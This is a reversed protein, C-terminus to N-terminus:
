VQYVKSCRKRYRDLYPFCLFQSKSWVLGGEGSLDIGNTITQASGDDTGEYVLTSFVDDVYVPDETAGGSIGLPGGPGGGMMGVLPSEKKNFTNDLM